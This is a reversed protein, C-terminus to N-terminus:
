EDTLKQVASRYEQWQGIDVWQEENIPFISVKKNKKLLRTILTTIDMYQNEPILNLAKKNLVYLGANILFDFKPKEKIEKLTGDKNLKCNGYPVMVEKTSAVLTIDSNSSIHQEILATCDIQFLVDCNCVIINNFKNKKLLSLSGATGLPKDELIYKLSYKPNLEEFFAKIIKSKFNISLFFENGGFEVFTDIIREIITKDGIPILPKPLVDTFPALRTGKGGAMIVIPLDIKKRKKSTDFVDRFEILNVVKKNKDLVAILDFEEKMFIDKIDEKKYKKEFVFFSNKNCADIVKSDLNGGSLIFRRIDGDSLIGIYKESDNVVVLSKKGHKSALKMADRVSHSEKLIQLKISM